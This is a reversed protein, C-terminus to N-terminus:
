YSLNHRFLVIFDVSDVLTPEYLEYLSQVMLWLAQM